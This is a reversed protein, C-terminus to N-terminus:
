NKRRLIPGAVELWADSAKISTEALRRIVDNVQVYGDLSDGHFFKPSSLYQSLEILGSALTAREAELARCQTQLIEIYSM